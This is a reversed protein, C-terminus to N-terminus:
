FHWGNARWVRPAGERINKVKKFLNYATEVENKNLLKKRLKKYVIRSPYFGNRLAEEMVRIANDLQGVNCLGDVIHDYVEKDSSYGSDQMHKWVELLMKCKGFRALRMLLLKYAKLSIECGVGRAKKYVIIAAHPPGYICLPEIFSTILGTNPCIGSGLMEDFIELADAVRRVKLLAGIVRHYTGVDPVCNVGDMCKYYRLCEDVDGVSVFNSIMANYVNTDAVCGMEEMREFVSVADDIRRNRGLCEIILGFSLCDPSLGDGIMLKLSRKVEDVRGLRAWRGIIANYAVSDFAVKGRMKDLLSEAVRVHCRRSLCCLVVNISECDQVWNFEELREFFRVAESVRRGGVLSDIVISLTENDPNVGDNRMGVLIEEVFNFFRRRGLARLIIHYMWLGSPLEPREIAWYFFSVMAAGGLNGRDVVEGFVEVTLDEGDIANTLASEVASRGKLNQLFVGRLREVKSLYNDVIGTKVPTEVPKMSYNPDIPLLNSLKRLIRHEEIPTERKPDNQPSKERNSDNQPLNPTFFRLSKPSPLLSYRSNISPRLFGLFIQARFAM